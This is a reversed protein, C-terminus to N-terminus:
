INYLDSAPLSIRLRKIDDEALDYFEVGYSYREHDLRRVWIVKGLVVIPEDNSQTLKMELVMRVDLDWRENAEFRVGGLSVDQTVFVRPNQESEPHGPVYYSFTWSEPFREHRRRDTQCVLTRNKGSYKAQYLARDAARVLEETGRACYPYTAVGASFTIKFTRFFESDALTKRFRESFNLAGNSSTEPLIAVFEEGGYRCFVDEERLMGHVAAAFERLVKDGFVHGHTDNQRKFDDLDFIIMSLEKKYRSCRNIEKRIAIDFYRRNFVQTLGDVMAMQETQKFIHIEILMPNSLVQNLNVFYDVLAVRIGVDRGLQASLDRRHEILNQWHRAAEAEEFHLHVFIELMESFFNAKRTRSKMVEDIQTSLYERNSNDELLQDMIKQRLDGVTEKKM